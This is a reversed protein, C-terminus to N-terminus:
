EIVWMFVGRSARWTVGLLAICLIIQLVCCIVDVARRVRLTKNFKFDKVFREHDARQQNIREENM